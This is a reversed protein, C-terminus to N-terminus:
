PPSIVHLYFLKALNTIKHLTCGGDAVEQDVSVLWGNGLFGGRPAIEDGVELQNLFKRWCGRRRKKRMRM